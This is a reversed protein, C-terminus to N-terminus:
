HMDIKENGRGGMACCGRNSWSRKIKSAEHDCESVGCKKFSRQVLSRDSEFVDVQSGPFSVLSLYGRGRLSEFGCKWCAISM